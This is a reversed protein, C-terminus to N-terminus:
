LDDLTVPRATGELRMSILMEPQKAEPLAFFRGSASIYRTSCTRDTIQGSARWFRHHTQQNADLTAQIRVETDVPLPNHFRVNLDGTVVLKRTLSGVVRGMAEDIIAALAGGHAFGEYGCYTKPIRCFGVVMEADRYFAIQLGATNEKGCIFCPPYYPLSRM